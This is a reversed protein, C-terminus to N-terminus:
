RRSAIRRAKLFSAVAFSFMVISFIASLILGFVSRSDDPGMERFLQLAKMLAPIALVLFIAGVAQNWIIRAPRM